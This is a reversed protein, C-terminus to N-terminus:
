SDIFRSSFLLGIYSYRHLSLSFVLVSSDIRRESVPNTTSSSCRFVSVLNISLFNALTLPSHAVSLAGSGGMRPFVSLISTGLFLLLSILLRLRSNLLSPHLCGNAYTLM